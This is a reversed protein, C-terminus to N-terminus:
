LQRLYKLTSRIITAIRSVEVSNTSSSSNNPNDKITINLKMSSNLMVNLLENRSYFRVDAVELAENLIKLYEFSEYKNLLMNHLFFLPWRSRIDKVDHVDNWGLRKAIFPSVQRNRKPNSMLWQQLRRVMTPCPYSRFFNQLIESKCMSQFYNRRVQIRSCETVDADPLTEGQSINISENYGPCDSIRIGKPVGLHLDEDTFEHFHPHYLYNFVMYYEVERDPYQLSPLSTDSDKEDVTNGKLSASKIYNSTESNDKDPTQTEQQFNVGSDEMYKDVLGEDLLSEYFQVVYVPDLRHKNTCNLPLNPFMKSAHKHVYQLVSMGKIAAIHFPSLGDLSTGCPLNSQSKAEFFIRFLEKFVNQRFSSITLPVLHNSRRWSFPTSKRPAILEAQDINGLYLISLDLVTLGSGTKLQTNVGISKFWKIADLNGGQTARHLPLYGEIDYFKDLIGVGDPHRDILKQLPSRDESLPKFFNGVDDPLALYSILHLESSTFSPKKEMLIDVGFRKFVESLQRGGLRLHQLFPRPVLGDTCNIDVGAKLLEYLSLPMQKAIIDQLVSAVADDCTRITKRKWWIVWRLIEDYSSTNCSRFKRDSTSYCRYSANQHPSGCDNCNLLFDVQTPIDAGAHVLYKFADEFGNYAAHYLLTKGKDDKKRLVFSKDKCSELLLKIIALRKSSVRQIWEGFSLNEDEYADSCICPCIKGFKYQLYPRWNVSFLLLEWGLECANTKSTISYDLIHKVAHDSCRKVASEVIASDNLAHGYKEYTENIHHMFHTHGHSIAVELANERACDTYISTLDFVNKSVLKETIEWLGFKASIHIATNGCKCNDETCYITYLFDQKVMSFLSCMKKKNRDSIKSGCQATVNAGSELLLDVMETDNREVADMLVTKGSHHKCELTENGVALLTKVIDIYGRSVAAHLATECFYLHVDEVSLKSHHLPKCNCQLCSDRVEGKGLLFKVVDLHNRAAAHHLAIMDFKAGYDRFLRLVDLHGNAAALHLPTPYNKISEQFNINSKLLFEVVDKHGKRAAAHMFSFEEVSTVCVANLFPNIDRFEALFSSVNAGNDVFNRLNEVLGESAAYFAPTKKNEDLLDVDKFKALFFRLVPLFPETPKRALHHLISQNTRHERMETINLVNLASGHIELTNGALIHRFLEIIEEFTVNRESIRHLLFKAMNQHGRTDNIHLVASQNILWEAFSQHYIRVTGDHGFRLFCLAQEILQSANGEEYESRLIEEVDNKLLPSDTSLLVEFLFSFPGFGDVGFQRDFFKNYMDFLSTPLARLDLMKDTDNLYQLISRVFLFNGEARETLKNMFETKNYSTLNMAPLLRDVLFSNQSIFRSVYLHIDEENRYDNAYLPKRRAGLPVKKTVVAVNRSTIILKLWKPFQLLKSSLIEAIESTKDDQFCEDLADIVIYRLGDRPKLNRLPGLISASFCGTVDEQCNGSLLDLRRKIVESKGILESYGPHRAAIQDVLNRVFRAGDRKGKESYDCFHFGIINRHIQLSSYPSCILQAMLASKGSGPDGTILVGAAGRDTEFINDLELFFWERGVFGERRFALDSSFDFQQYHLHSIPSDINASTCGEDSAMGNKDGVQGYALILYATLCRKLFSPLRWLILTLLLLPIILLSIIREITKDKQCEHNHRYEKLLCLENDELISLDAVEAKHIKPKYDQVDKCTLLEPDNMLLKIDQFAAKKASDSLKHKTAHAWKNRIDTVAKLLSTQIKFYKCFKFLNLLPGVDTSDPDTVKAPDSGLDSMYLKAVEWYGVAPDHWKSSDSQNWLIHTKNKFTHNKKLEQAWACSTARGHPNPKTGPAFTCNCQAAPGVNKAILAHFKKMENEAYKQLGGNLFILANGVAQWNLHEPDNRIRSLERATSGM